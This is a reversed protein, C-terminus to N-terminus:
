SLIERHLCYLVEALQRGVPGRVPGDEPSWLLRPGGVTVRLVSFWAGFAGVLM